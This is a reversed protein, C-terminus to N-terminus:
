KGFSFSGNLKVFFFILAAAAVALAAATIIISLKGSKKLMKSNNASSIFGSSRMATIIPKYIIFVVASNFISKTLNFPLLLTPIMAAVESRSVGMYFPTIFLNALMMVGVTLVSAVSIGTVAFPLTRRKTYILSSIGVFTCSSLANMIFGYFETSSITVAEIVAVLIAMAIGYVPGLIMGGVAMVADKLDFTLFGAKFHFLVCCVYALAAFLGAACLTKIHERSSVTKSTREM